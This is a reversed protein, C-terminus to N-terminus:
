KALGHVDDLQANKTPKRITQAGEWFCPLFYLVVLVLFYLFTLTVDLIPRTCSYKEVIMVNRAYFRM